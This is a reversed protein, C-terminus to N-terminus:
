VEGEIERAIRLQVDGPLKSTIMPILLSGYQEPNVQLAALGRIHVNIQDYVSRLMQPKDTICSPVKLLEDM